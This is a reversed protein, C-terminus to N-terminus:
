QLHSLEKSNQISMNKQPFKEKCMEIFESHTFVKNSDINFEKFWNQIRKKNEKTTIVGIFRSDENKFDISSVGNSLQSGCPILAQKKEEEKPYFAFIAGYPRCTLHGPEAFEVPVDINYKNGVDIQEATSRFDANRDEPTKLGGSKIIEYITSINGRGHFVIPVGDPIVEKVNKSFTCRVNLREQTDQPTDERIYKLQNQLSTIKDTTKKIIKAYVEMKKTENNKTAEDLLKQTACLRDQHNAINKEMINKLRQLEQAM